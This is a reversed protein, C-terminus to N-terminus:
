YFVALDDRREPLSLFPVDGAARQERLRALVPRTRDLRNALADAMLGRAGIADAMCSSIDHEYVVVAM